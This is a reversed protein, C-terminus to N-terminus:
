RAIKVANKRALSDVWAEYYKEPLANITDESLTALPLYKLPDVHMGNLLMEFHLHPGTTMYGAGKTGPMGGSMAIISGQSVMQGEMVLIDSVHGYVSM